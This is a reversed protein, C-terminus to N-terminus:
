SLEEAVSYVWELDAPTWEVLEGEGAFFLGLEKAAGRVSSGARGVNPTSAGSLRRRGLGTRPSAKKKQFDM